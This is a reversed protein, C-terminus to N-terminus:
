KEYLRTILIRRNTIYEIHMRYVFQIMNCFFVLMRNLTRQLNLIKRRDEDIYQSRKVLSTCISTISNNIRKAAQIDQNYTTRTKAFSRVEQIFQNVEGGQYTKESKRGRFQARLHGFYENLNDISSPAGMEGCLAKDLEKTKLNILASQPIAEWNNLYNANTTIVARLKTVKSHLYQEANHNYTWNILVIDDQLKYQSQMEDYQSIFTDNANWTNELLRMTVRDTKNITALVAEGNARVKEVFENVTDQQMTQDQDNVDRKSANESQQQSRTLTPTRTREAESTVTPQGYSGGTQNGDNAEMAIDLTDAFLNLDSEFSQLMQSFTMGYDM